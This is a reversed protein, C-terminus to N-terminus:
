IGSAMRQGGSLFRAPGAYSRGQWEALALASVLDDTYGSRANMRVNGAGTLEYEFYQLERVLQEDDPLALEQHSLRLVLNDVIERKSSNTFTLGEIAMGAGGEWLIRRLQELLPDGISTQDTLVANVRYRTLLDAVRRVQSEWSLRNFRDIAVVRHPVAGCDVVVVATYDSYRAWDIGAVLWPEESADAVRGLGVAKQILDWSFVSTQDDLFEAEYEVSFQRPTLIERQFEVYERSIFPNSWSPFRHSSYRGPRQASLHGLGVDGCGDAESMKPQQGKVFARYFHNKGFPTSIMVLQGNRDALMPGIVEEVVADRVYAAEDVIVRDASHGRLNRGDEDATRATIVSRGISMRPYPTRTVKSISRTLPQESVMKEVTDFILRSQDYSPSVIMQVSGQSAIAFTAADVAAAETKGWRRGCAAVKVRSEDLLWERQTPHPIWGFLRKALRLRKGPSIM